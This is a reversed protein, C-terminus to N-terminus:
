GKFHLIVPDARSIHFSGEVMKKLNKDEEIIKERNIAVKSVASYSIDFRVGIKKNTLGSLRKSLYISLKRVLLPRVM